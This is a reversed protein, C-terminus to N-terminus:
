KEMPEVDQSNGDNEEIGALRVDNKTETASRGLVPLQGKPLAKLVHVIPYSMCGQQCGRQIKFCTKSLRGQKENRQKVCNKTMM